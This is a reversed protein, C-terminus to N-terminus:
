SDLRTSYTEGCSNSCYVRWDLQVTCRLAVISYVSVCCVKEANVLSTNFSEETEIIEQISYQRKRISENQQKLAQSGDSADVVLTM